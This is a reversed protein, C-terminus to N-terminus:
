EELACVPACPDHALKAPNEPSLSTSRDGEIAAVDMTSYVQVWHGVGLHGLLINLLCRGVVPVNRRSNLVIDILQVHSSAHSVFILLNNGGAARTM